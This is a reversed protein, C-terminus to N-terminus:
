AETTDPGPEDGTDQGPEDDSHITRILDEIHSGYDVSADYVFFIQPMYRLGLEQALARKIYGHADAFGRAAGKKAAEGGTVTYYISASKVDRPVKVGTIVTMELRPDKIKKHLVESLIKQIQTAIRDGRPFAKM